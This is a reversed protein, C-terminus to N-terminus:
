ARSAMVTLKLLEAEAKSMFAQAAAVTPTSPACATLFCPILLAALRNNAMKALKDIWGRFLCDLRPDFGIFASLHPSGSAFSADANKFPAMAQVPGSCPCDLAHLAPHAQTHDRIVHHIDTKLECGFASRYEALGLARMDNERAGFGNPAM